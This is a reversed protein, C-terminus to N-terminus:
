GRAAPPSRRNRDARRAAPEHHPLRLGDRERRGPRPERPVGRVPERARAHADSPDGSASARTRQHGHRRSASSRSSACISEVVPRSDHQPRGLLLDVHQRGITGTVHLPATVTIASPRGADSALPVTTQLPTRGHAVDARLRDLYAVLPARPADAAFTGVSVATANELVVTDGSSAFGFRCRRLSRPRTSRRAPSSCASSGPRVGGLPDLGTRLGPISESGAPARVTLVPAGITFFYDGVGRVDLRQTATVAFPTGAGDVAVVVNTSASISHPVNEASSRAGGALPPEASLPATPSPLPRPGRRACGRRVRAGRRVAAFARSMADAPHDPANSLAPRREGTCVDHRPLARLVCRRRRCGRPELQNFAREDGNAGEVTVEELAKTVKAPDTSGAKTIAAALLNVFDYAYMPTEPPEVVAAGAATRVGVRDVGYAAAYRQAFDTFPTAGVEATLRGAPSTLGDVWAPHDALQQRVFPDAGTPPTYFPVNWGASRAATIAAAITAPPGM